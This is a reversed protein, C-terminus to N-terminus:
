NRDMRLSLDNWQKERAARIGAVGIPAAPSSTTRRRRVESIARPPRRNSITTRRHPRRRDGGDRNCSPLYDLSAAQHPAAALDRTMRGAKGAVRLGMSSRPPGAERSLSADCEACLMQIQTVARDSRALESVLASQCERCFVIKPM